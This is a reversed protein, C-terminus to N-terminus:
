VFAMLYFYFRSFIIKERFTDKKLGVMSPVGRLGVCIPQSCVGRDDYNVCLSLVLARARKKRMQVHM